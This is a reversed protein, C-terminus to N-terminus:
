DEEKVPGTSGRDLFVADETERLVDPAEGRIRRILLTALRKGAASSDVSFTTLPPEARAGEAIGDYGTISIDRGVSLGRARVAHYAGLAVEDIACVIATPPIAQDLFRGAAAKGEDQSMADRAMLAPDIELGNEYMGLMFGEHRLGSYAYIDGGNIFGIRRHGLNALHRVAKRMANEGRIDFWACDEPVEQRGYLVFPVGLERLYLVRQDDVMARPLIFGDAKGDKMLARFSELVAAETDASAVTLTYGHTSAGASMGALFEALFPRHADHDALQLVFGVSRTRGTKIAQAHSLPQYNMRQAMSKVRQRTTESIDAYDNMARSVTSKTLDLAAAVDGITVRAPGDSRLIKRQGITM